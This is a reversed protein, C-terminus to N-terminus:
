MMHMALMYIRGGCATLNNQYEKPSDFAKQAMDVANLEQWAADFLPEGAAAARIRGELSTLAHRYIDVHHLEHELVTKFACRSRTLESAVYLVPNAYGVVAACGEVKVTATQHVLGVLGDEVALDVLGAYPVSFDQRVDFPLVTIQIENTRCVPDASAFTSMAALVISVLARM